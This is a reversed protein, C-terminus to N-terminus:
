SQLVSLEYRSIILTSFIRPYENLNNLVLIAIAPSSTLSSSHRLLYDVQKKYASQNLHFRKVGIVYVGGGEQLLKILAM